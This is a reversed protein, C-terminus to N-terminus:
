IDFLEEASNSVPSISKVCASLLLKASIITPAFVKEKDKAVDPSVIVDLGDKGEPIVIEWTEVPVLLAFIFIDM